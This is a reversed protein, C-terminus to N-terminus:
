LVDIAGTPGVICHRRQFALAIENKRDESGSPWRSVVEDEVVSPPCVQAACAHRRRAIVPIV